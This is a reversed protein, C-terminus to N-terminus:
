FASGMTLICIRASVGTTAFGGKIEIRNSTTKTMKFNYNSNGVTVVGNEIVANAWSSGINSFNSVTFATSATFYFFFNGAGDINGFCVGTGWPGFPITVSENNGVKINHMGYIRNYLGSSKVPSNSNATPENDMVGSLQLAQSLTAADTKNIYESYSRPIILGDYRSM